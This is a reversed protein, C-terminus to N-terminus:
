QLQQLTSFIAETCFFFPLGLMHCMGLSQLINIPTMMQVNRREMSFPLTTGFHPQKEGRLCYESTELILGRTYPEALSKVCDGM